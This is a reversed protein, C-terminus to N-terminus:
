ELSSDISLTLDLPYLLCHDWQVLQSWVIGNHEVVLATEVLIFEVIVSKDLILVFEPTHLIAPKSKDSVVGPNVVHCYM